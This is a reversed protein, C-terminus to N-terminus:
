WQRSTNRPAANDIFDCLEADIPVDNNELFERFDARLTKAVTRDVARGHRRYVHLSFLFVTFFGARQRSDPALAFNPLNLGFGQAGYRDPLCHWCANSGAACGGGLCCCTACAAASFGAHREDSVCRFCHM